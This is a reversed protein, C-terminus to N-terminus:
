VLVEESIPKLNKNNTSEINSTYFHDKKQYFLHSEVRYSDLMEIM